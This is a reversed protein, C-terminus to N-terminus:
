ASDIGSISDRQRWCELSDGNTTALVFSCYTFQLHGTAAGSHRSSNNNSNHVCRASTTCIGTSNLSSVGTTAM